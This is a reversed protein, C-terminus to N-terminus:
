KDGAFWQRCRATYLDRRELELALREADFMGEIDDLVSLRNELKAMRQDLIKQLLDSIVAEEKCAKEEAQSSVIGLLAAKQAENSDFDSAKMAESITASLVDPRVDDVIGRVIHQRKLSVEKKNTQTEITVDENMASRSDFDISLFERHCDFATTNEGVEKAILDWNISMRSDTEDGNIKRKKSTHSAVAAVLRCKKENAWKGLSTQNQITSNYAANTLEWTTPASDGIASGNIFGWDVLFKHLRLLSGADGSVCRRIATSTVYKNNSRRAVDIIRERATIYSIQCRHLSSKNFWEPLFRKEFDSVSKSDYWLPKAVTPIQDAILSDQTKTEMGPILTQPNKPVQSKAKPPLKDLSPVEAEAKNSVNTSPTPIKLHNETKEKEKGDKMAQATVTPDTVPQSTPGKSVPSTTGKSSVNSDKIKNISSPREEVKISKPEEKSSSSLENPSTGANVNSLRGQQADPYDGIKADQATSLTDSRVSHTREEVSISQAVIEARKGENLTGDDNLKTGPPDLKTPNNGDITHADKMEIDNDNMGGGGRIRHPPVLVPSTFPKLSSSIITGGAQGTRLETVLFTKSYMKDRSPRLVTGVSPFSITVKGSNNDNEINKDWDKTAGNMLESAVPPIKVAGNYVTRRLKTGNENYFGTFIQRPNMGQNRKTKLDAVSKLAQSSSPISLRIRLPDGENKKRRSAEKKIHAIKAQEIKALNKFFAVKKESILLILDCTLVCLYM